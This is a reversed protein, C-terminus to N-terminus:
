KLDGQPFMWSNVIGVIEVTQVPHIKRGEGTGGDDETRTSLAMGVDIQGCFNARSLDVEGNKTNHTRLLVPTDDPYQALMIRIEKVTRNKLVLQKTHGYEDTKM